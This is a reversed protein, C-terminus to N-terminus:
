AADRVIAPAESATFLRVRRAEHLYPVGETYGTGRREGLMRVALRYHTQRWAMIAAEFRQM